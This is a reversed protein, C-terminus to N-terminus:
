FFFSLAFIVKKKIKLWDNVNKVNLQTAAWDLFTKQRQIDDWYGANGKRFKWPLWNHEPYVASLLSHISHKYLRILGLGGSHILDQLHSPSIPHIVTATIDYWQNPDTINRKSALSDLFQRQYSLNRWEPKSDIEKDLDTILPDVVTVLM